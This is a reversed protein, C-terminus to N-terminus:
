RDWDADLLGNDDLTSAAIRLRAAARALERRQRVPDPATEGATIHVKALRLQEMALDIRERTEM